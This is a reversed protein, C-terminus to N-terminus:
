KGSIYIQWMQEYAKEMERTFQKANWLPASKRSQQLQWSIKQRLAEDKGLCIGWEIYEEESWSIGEKVGTNMMMTYSNRAAFQEGVKTVLPIGMWLTELTTTAGNYPYTDLVVDAIGLNARHIAESPVMPLFRLQNTDVGEELAIQNFFSQITEEQALGKILLYSNPVAKLIRMQLRITDPHRKSGSQATLYVIADDPINLHERRLTPVGVEFGDVAIYTQPLRWIKESYYDDANQPLVYPDAIFYDIAPIGSADWGLWTAQIKAPKLAMVECTIDLTLSDLDILIDIEDQYIQETIDRTETGIKHATEFQRTYWEQLPDEQNQSGVFYGYFQFSERNHNEFLWRALWGVSHQRFCHSIYGVRLPKTSKNIHQSRKCKQQYWQAEEEAYNQLNRQCLAALKNQIKRFIQPNDQFYPFFFTSLLTRSIEASDDLIPQQEILSPLLNEQRKLIEEAEEWYSGANIFTKLLLHNGYARDALTKNELLLYCKNATEIAKAYNGSNQYFATLHRLLELNEDDIQLCIEALKVGQSPRKVSYSTDIAAVLVIAFFKYLHGLYPLCAKAFELPLSHLPDYNLIQELVEMLLNISLEESRYSKLLEIIEWDALDDGTFTEQKIAIQILHLLNNIDLPQIERIHQRLLYTTSYDEQALCRQAEAEIIKVLECSWLEVQEAEGEMIALAWTTQAEVEKGQLLLTLGLYWYNYKINPQVEIAYEYLSAAQYYEGQMLCQYAKQHLNETSKTLASNSIM